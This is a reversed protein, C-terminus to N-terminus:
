VGKTHLGYAKALVQLGFIIKAIATFIPLGFVKISSVQSLGNGSVRSLELFCDDMRLFGYDVM